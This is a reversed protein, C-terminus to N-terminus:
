QEGKSNQILQDLLYEVRNRIIDLYQKQVNLLSETQSTEVEGSLPLSNTEPQLLLGQDTYTTELYEVHRNLSLQISSGGDDEHYYIDINENHSYSTESRNIKMQSYAASGYAPSVQSSVTSIQM